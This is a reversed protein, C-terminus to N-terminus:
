FLPSCQYVSLSHLCKAGKKKKKEKYNAQKYQSVREATQSTKM